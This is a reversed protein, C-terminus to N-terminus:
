QRFAAARLLLPDGDSKGSLPVPPHSHSIDQFRRQPLCAVAQDQALFLMEQLSPRDHFVGGVLIPPIYRQAQHGPTRNGEDHIQVPRQVYGSWLDLQLQVGGYSRLAVIFVEAQGARHRLRGHSLLTHGFGSGHGARLRHVFFLIEIQTLTNGRSSLSQLRPVEEAVQDLMRHRNGPLLRGHQGDHILVHLAPSDGDVISVNLGFM